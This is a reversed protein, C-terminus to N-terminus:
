ADRRFARVLTQEMATREADDLAFPDDGGVALFLGAAVETRRVGPITTDIALGRPVIVRGGPSRPRARLTALEDRPDLELIGEYPLGKGLPQATPTVFGGICTARAAAEAFTGDVAKGIAIRAADEDPRPLSFFLDLPVIRASPYQDRMEQDFITTGRPQHRIRVASADSPGEGLPTRLTIEAEDEFHRVVIPRKALDDILSFAKRDKPHAGASTISIALKGRAKALFRALTSAADLLFARDAPGAEGFGLWGSLWGNGDYAQIAELRRKTQFPAEDADPPWPVVPQRPGREITCAMRTEDLVRGSTDKVRVVLDGAGEARATGHLRFVFRNKSHAAVVSAFARMAGRSLPMAIPASPSVGLMPFTAKGDDVRAVEIQTRGGPGSDPNWGAIEPVDLLDRASGDLEVVLGDIREGETATLSFTCEHLPMGVCVALATPGELTLPGDGGMPLFVQFPSAASSEEIEDAEVQQARFRLKRANAPPDSWMYRASAGPHPLGILEAGRYITSEPLTMDAALGAELETRADASVALDALFKAAVRTRGTARDLVGDNPVELRGKRKGDRFRELAAIDSHFVSIAMVDADLAKSLRRAFAGAQEPDVEINEDSVAVWDGDAFVLVHHEDERESSADDVLALGRLGFQGIIWETMRDLDGNKIHLAGFTSGM